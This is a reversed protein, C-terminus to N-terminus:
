RWRLTDPSPSKQGAAASWGMVAVVIVGILLALLIAIVAYSGRGATKASSVFDSWRLEELIRNITM